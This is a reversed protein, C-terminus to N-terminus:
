AQLRGRGLLHSRAGLPESSLCLPPLPILRLLLTYPPTLSVHKTCRPLGESVNLNARPYIMYIVSAQQATAPQLQPLILPILHSSTM